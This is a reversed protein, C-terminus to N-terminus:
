HGSLSPCQRVRDTAGDLEGRIRRLLRRGAGWAFLQGPFVVAMSVKSGPECASIEIRIRGGWHLASSAVAGEVILRDGTTAHEIAEIKIGNALLTCLLAVGTITPDRPYAFADRTTNRLGLTKGLSQSLSGGIRVVPGMSELFEEATIAPDHLSAFELLAM